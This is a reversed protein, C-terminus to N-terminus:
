RLEDLQRDVITRDKLISYIQSRLVLPATDKNWVPPFHSRLLLVAALTDNPLDGIDDDADEPLEPEEIHKYAEAHERRIEGEQSPLSPGEQLLYYVAFSLFPCLQYQSTLDIIALVLLPPHKLFPQFSQHGTM